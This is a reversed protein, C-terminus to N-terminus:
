RGPAVKAAEGQRLRLGESLQVQGGQRVFLEDTRVCFM